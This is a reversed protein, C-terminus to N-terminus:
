RSTCRCNAHNVTQPRPECEPCPMHAEVFKVLEGWQEYTFQMGRTMYAAETLTIHGNVTIIVTKDSAGNNVMVNGVLLGERVANSM